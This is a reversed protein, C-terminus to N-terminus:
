EFASPDGKDGIPRILGFSKNERPALGKRRINSIMTSVSLVFGLCRTFRQAEESSDMDRATRWVGHRVPWAAGRHTAGPKKSPYPRLHRWRRSRAFSVFLVKM